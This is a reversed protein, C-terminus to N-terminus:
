ELYIRKYDNYKTFKLDDEVIKKAIEFDVVFCCVEMTGSGISGGDCFGLGTWGLTEQMRDQLDYRKQLDQDNELDVEYEIILTELDEIPITKYGESKLNEMMEYTVTTPVTDTTGKEGLKGFHIMSSKQDSTWTEWYYLSGDINKYLKEM